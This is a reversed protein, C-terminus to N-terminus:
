GAPFTLFGQIFTRVGAEYAEDPNLWSTEEKGERAAKLAYEQMRQEFSADDPQWAGLLAQYLMYEFTASPARLDGDTTIHPANILKWRGVAGTWEGPMESLAMIRARADEGRKTDHTATATMGHPWEKARIRMMQHFDDVALAKAAPDGGVENLALLRHYRYFTTDELSKAMMPGTFQQLKLAFRRVRPGSHAARGPGILDM